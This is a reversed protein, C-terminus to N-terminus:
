RQVRDTRAAERDFHLSRIDIAKPDVVCAQRCLACGTCLASNVVPKEDDCVLAGPIPCSGFCAGCEPGTYPLCHNTNILVSALRFQVADETSHEPIALADTECAEVCPWGDCSHCGKNLLDLAPTGAVQLGLREPLAFVVGYPCANLCAACRSCALLFELESLAFPPRIWHAARASANEEWEEVAWRSAKDVGRRFFERRNM